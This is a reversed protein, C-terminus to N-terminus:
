MAATCSVYTRGTWTGRMDPVVKLARVAAIGDVVRAIRRHWTIRCCGTRERGAGDYLTRESVLPRPSEQSGDKRVRVMRFQPSASRQSLRLPVQRLARLVWPRSQLRSCGLSGDTSRFTASSLLRRLRGARGRALLGDAPSYGTRPRTARGRALLGDAPSYGTRPALLGDAPSYGTRPRAAASPPSCGAFRAAHIYTYTYLQMWPARVWARGM